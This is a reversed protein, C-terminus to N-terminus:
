RILWYNTMKNGRMDLTTEGDMKGIIKEVGSIDVTEEFPSHPNVRYGVTDGYLITLSVVEVVKGNVLKIVDGIRLDSIKM